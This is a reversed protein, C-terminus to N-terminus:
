PLALEDRAHSPLLPILLKIPVSFGLGTAGRLSGQHVSVVEGDANFIPSGSSGGVSFGDFQIREPTIKSFIGASMSTRVTRTNDLANRVGAPFGILAAPEGQSTHTGSWDIKTVHPWKFDRIKLLALDVTETSPISIIDARVMWKEDAMTVFVSDAEGEPVVVHRNTVFYGSPGIAFGSGDFIKLGKFVTVLGVAGQNDQALAALNVGEVARIQSGIGAVQAEAARVAQRLSDLLQPSVQNQTARALQASLRQVEADALRRLSDGVALQKNLSIQARVLTAELASTRQEAATLAERLSDVVAAPASAALAASLEYRLEDYEIIAGELLSDILARQTVNALRQDELALRQSELLSATAADRLKTQYFLTGVIGVAVVVFLWLLRRARRASSRNAEAVIKRVVTTSVPLSKGGVELEPPEFNSGAPSASFPPQVEHVIFTPGGDGLMIRYGAYLESAGKVRGGNVWTGNMSGADRIMVADDEGLFIEAHFRSVADLDGNVPCVECEAARGLRVLEGSAEIYARGIPDFLVVRLPPNDTSEALTELLPASGAAQVEFRPGSMGLGIVQGARLEVPKAIMTENVFTGNRSDADEVWWRDTRYSLRCHLASVVNSGEGSLPLELGPDRGIRVEDCDFELPSNSRLDLLRLYSM